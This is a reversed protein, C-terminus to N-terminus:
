IVEIQKLPHYGRWIEDIKLSSDKLYDSNNTEESLFMYSQIMSNSIYTMNIVDSESVGKKLKLKIIKLLRENADLLNLADYFKRYDDRSYINEQVLGDRDILADISLELIDEVQSVSVTISAKKELKEAVVSKIKKLFKMESKTWINLKLLHEINTNLKRAAASLWLVDYRNRHPSFKLKNYVDSILENYEAYKILRSEM